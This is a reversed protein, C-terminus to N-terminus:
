RDRIRIWIESGRARAFVAHVWIGGECVPQRRMMVEIPDKLVVMSIRTMM